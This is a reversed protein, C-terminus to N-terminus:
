PPNTDRVRVRVRVRAVDEYFVTCESVFVLSSVLLKKNNMEIKNCQNM